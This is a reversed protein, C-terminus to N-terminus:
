GREVYRKLAQNLAQFDTRTREILAGAFPVLLGAFMEAQVMRTAGSATSTLVFSHEGDFIGHVALRGIWRLESGPIAALVTPRFTMPRGQVPFMRLTLRNGIALRGSAERIFPNWAPYGELDALASWVAMAPADIEISTSIQKM